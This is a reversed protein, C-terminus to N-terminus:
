HHENQSPDNNEKENEMQILQEVAKSGVAFRKIPLVRENQVSIRSQVLYIGEKTISHSVSYVGPSSETAKVVIAAERNGEPWFIFEAQEAHELPRNNKFVEVSFDNKSNLDLHKPLHVEVTLHTPLGSEDIEAIKMACGSLLVGFILIVGLSMMRQLINNM